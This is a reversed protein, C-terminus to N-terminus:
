GYIKKKITCKNFNYQMKENQQQKAKESSM